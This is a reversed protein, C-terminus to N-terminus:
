YDAPFIGTLYWDYAALTDFGNAVLEEKLWIFIDNTKTGTVSAKLDAEYLINSLSRKAV